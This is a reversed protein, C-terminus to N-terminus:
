ETQTTQEAGSDRNGFFRSGSLDIHWVNVILLWLIVAVVLCILRPLIDWRRAKENVTEQKQILRGVIKKAKM